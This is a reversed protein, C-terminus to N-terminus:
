RHTQSFSNAGISGYSKFDNEYAADDMGQVLAPPEVSAFKAFLKKMYDILLKSKEFFRIIKLSFSRDLSPHDIRM